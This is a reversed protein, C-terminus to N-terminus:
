KVEITKRRRVFFLTLTSSVAAILAIIIIAYQPIIWTEQAGKLSSIDAEINGIPTVITATNNDIRTITGNM